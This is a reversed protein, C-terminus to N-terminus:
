ELPKAAVAPNSSPKEPLASAQSTDNSAADVDTAPSTSAPAPPQEAAEATGSSQSDAPPNVAPPIDSSTSVQETTPTAPNRQEHGLFYGLSFFVACLLVVAFFALLVLRTPIPGSDQNM